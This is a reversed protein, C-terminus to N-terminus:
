LHKLDINLCSWSRMDTKENGSCWHKHRTLRAEFPGSSLIPSSASLFPPMWLVEVSFGCILDMWLVSHDICVSSPRRIKTHPWFYIILCPNRIRFDICVCWVDIFVLSDSHFHWMLTWHLDLSLGFLYQYFYIFTKKKVCWFLYDVSVFLVWGHVSVCKLIYQVEYISMHVM